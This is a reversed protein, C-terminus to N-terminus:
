LNFGKEGKNNTPTSIDKVGLRTKKNMKGFTIPIIHGIGLQQANYCIDSLTAGGSINDDFIVFVTGKTKEVEKQVMDFDKNPNYINKLAMREPDSLNKIQFKKRQYQYIPVAKYKNGTIPSVTNKLYPKVSDWILKSRKEVSPSKTGKIPEFLDSYRITSEKGTIPNIYSNQLKGKISEILDFYKTYNKILRNLFGDSDKGTNVSSRYQNQSSILIRSIDELKEAENYLSALVSNKAIAKEVNGEISGGTGDTYIPRKYYEKNREIFEEDKQLNRLDKVFLNHNIIQCPLGNIGNTASLIDAMRINFNSSSPVPLISIGYPTFKEGSSRYAQICHQIVNWVKRKFFDIFKNFESDEMAIEYTKGNANFVTKESDWYRKFYHMVEMGNIQTINYSIIGNKLPVEYTDANSNEMKDTKLNDLSSLNGQHKQKGSSDYALFAKKGKIRNRDIYVLEDLRKGSSIVREIQQETLKIIM